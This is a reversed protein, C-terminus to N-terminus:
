AIPRFALLWRLFCHILILDLEWSRFVFLVVIDPIYLVLLAEELTCIYAAPLNDSPAMAVAHDVVSHFVIIWVILLAFIVVVYSIVVNGLIPEIVVLEQMEKHFEDKTM